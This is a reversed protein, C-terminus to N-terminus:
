KNIPTLELEALAREYVAAVEAHISALYPADPYAQAWLKLVSAQAQRSDRARSELRGRLWSRDTDPVKLHM